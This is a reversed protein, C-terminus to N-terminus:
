GQFVGNPGYLNEPAHVKENYNADTHKVALPVRTWENGEAEEIAEKVRVWRKAGYRHGPSSSNAIVPEYPGNAPDFRGVVFNLHDFNGKGAEPFWDYAIMDGVTWGWPQNVPDIHALGFQWLHRPLLNAAVWSQTEDHENWYLQGNKMLNRYWWSGDTHDFARMFKMRGARFVQSMFNTCNNAGFDPYHGWNWGGNHEENGWYRAYNAARTLDLQGCPSQHLQCYGNVSSATAVPDVVFEPEGEVQPPVSIIVEFENPTETDPVVEILVPGTGGQALVVWPRALVAIVEKPTESAARMLEYEGNELQVQADALAQPSKEPPSPIGTEEEAPPSNANVIAVVGSPLKVLEEGPAVTVNWAFSDPANPGRLSQIMTAGMATPRIVTDTEPGTNAFVAADGNVVTANTAASTLAAPTICAAQDLTVGGEPTVSTEGEALSGVAALNPSPQSYTPDIPLETEVQTTAQSPAVAAPLSEQIASIAQSSSVVGKPAVSEAETACEPAVPPSDHVNVEITQQSINGQLDVAEVTIQHSADAPEETEALVQWRGTKIKSYGLLGCQTSGTCSVGLLSSSTAETPTPVPQFRWSSGDWTFALPRTEAQPNAYSGVATCAAEASCSVGNVSVSSGEPVIPTSVYRGRTATGARSIRFLNKGQEYEELFSPQTKGYAWCDGASGCSVGYLYGAASGAPLSPQGATWKTGNWYEALPHAGSGYFGVALCANAASCSIGELTLSTAGEPKPVASTQWQSGNWHGYFLEPKKGQEYEELFSPQTKGYAWCDGASGCSVGTLSGSPSGSSAASPGRDLEHRELVRGPSSNRQQLLRSRPLRESGLLLHRRAHPQHGRRTEPGASAQWESGNWHELLPESKKGEEYEELFTYRTKGIAWCNDKAVCSVRKLEGIAGNGATGM